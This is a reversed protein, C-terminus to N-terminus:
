IRIESLREAYVREVSVLARYFTSHGVIYHIGAEDSLVGVLSQLHRWMDDFYKLSDRISDKPKKRKKIRAVGVRVRGRFPSPIFINGRSKVEFPSAIFKSAATQLWIM